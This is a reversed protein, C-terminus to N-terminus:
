EIRMAILPDVRSARIAPVLSAVCGAVAIVACAIFWSLPDARSTGYLLGQLLGSAATGGIVGVLLGGAVLTLGQRTVLGVIRTSPSGLASRIGIERTRQAVVYSMVGYLGALALLVAVAAFVSLLVFYFRPQGVSASVIDSMPAMRAIAAGPDVKHIAARVAGEIAAPDGSTVRVMIAEGTSGRDVQDFPFYVEPHPPDFPGFNRIDSVVGVITAFTTDSLYFRKGIANGDKFDRKVLAENALVVIPQNTKQYDAAGIWRGAVLRQATVDFFGPTAERNEVLPKKAQDDRSQGEYRVTFNDGWESYPVDDIAGAASVGPIALIADLAPHLFGQIEGDNAYATPSVSVNLALMRSADFGPDNHLVSVFGRLVLSATILLVLSLGVEAVVLGRLLRHQERGTGGGRGGRMAEQPDVSTSRWAPLMGCIVAAVVALLVGVAIIRWDMRLGDLQPIQTAALAGITRVGGWALALGGALGIATLLVSEAVIPRVVAWRSGGLAARVAIERRRQVGRALLLSAVNSTAILLVICVAGLLLLLPTRVSRVADAELPVVRVSEGNVNPYTALLGNFISVLETQATAATAGPALRGVLMLYNSGRNNLERDTFRMPLWVDAKVNMTGHEFRFDRPVVGVITAPTGKVTITRGIAAPDGGFHERWFPESIVLVDPAGPQDDAPTFLRGRVAQAGLLPFFNGTVRFMTPKLSQDSIKLIGSANAWTGAALGSLQHTARAYDLYNPASHPWSNAHPATRYVTVLRAPDRYPPPQVLARNVASAVATTVGIGLALCIIAALAVTPARRLGRAADRLDSM